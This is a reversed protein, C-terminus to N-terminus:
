CNNFGILSVGHIVVEDRSWFVLLVVERNWFIM